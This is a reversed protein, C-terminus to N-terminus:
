PLVLTCIAFASGTNGIILASGTSGIILAPGTNCRFM